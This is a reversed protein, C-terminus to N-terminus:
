SVEQCNSIKIQLFVESAILRKSLTIRIEKDSDM